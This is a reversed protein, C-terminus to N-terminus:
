IKGWNNAYWRARVLTDNAYDHGTTFKDNQPYYAGKKGGNYKSLATAFQESDALKPYSTGASDLKTTFTKVGWELWRDEYPNLKVKGLSDNLESKVVEFPVGIRDLQLIGFGHYTASKEGRRQSHDGWGWYISSAPQLTQGMNSERSAIGALLAPAISNAIGLNEFKTKLNFDNIFKSHLEAAKESAPIGVLKKSKFMHTKAGTPQSKLGDVIDVFHKNLEEVTM